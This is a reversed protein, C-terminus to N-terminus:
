VQRHEVPTRQARLNELEQRLEENEEELVKLSAISEISQSM